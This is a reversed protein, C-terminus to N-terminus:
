VDHKENILDSDNTNKLYGYNYNIVAIITYM